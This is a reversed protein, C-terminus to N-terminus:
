DISNEKFLTNNVSLLWNEFLVIQLRFDHQM